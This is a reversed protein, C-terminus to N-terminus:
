WTLPSVLPAPRVEVAAESRDARTHWYESQAAADDLMSQLSAREAAASEQAKAMDSKADEM